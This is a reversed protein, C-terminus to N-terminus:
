SEELKWPPRGTKKCRYLAALDSAAGVMLSVLAAVEQLTWGRSYFYWAIRAAWLRKQLMRRVHPPSIALADEVTLSGNRARALLQLAEESAPDLIRLAAEVTLRGRWALDLLELYPGADRLSEQMEPPFHHWAIRALTEGRRAAREHPFRVDAGAYLMAALSFAEEYTFALPDSLVRFDSPKQPGLTM